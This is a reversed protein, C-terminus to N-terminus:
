SARRADERAYQRLVGDVRHIVRDVALELSPQVEEIEVDPWKKVCVLLRVWYGPSMDPGAKAELDLTVQRLISAYRTFAIRLLRELSEESRHVEPCACASIAIKM